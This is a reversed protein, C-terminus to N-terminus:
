GVQACCSHRRGGCLPALVAHIYALLFAQCRNNGASRQRDISELLSRPAPRRQGCESAHKSIAAEASMAMHVTRDADGAARLALAAVDANWVLQADAHVGRDGDVLGALFQITKPAIEFVERSEDFMDLRHLLDVVLVRM